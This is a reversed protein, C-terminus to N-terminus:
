TSFGFLLREIVQLHLKIIEDDNFSLITPPDPFEKIIEKLKKNRSPDSFFERLRKIHERSYKLTPM